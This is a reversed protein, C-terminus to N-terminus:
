RGPPASTSGAGPWSYELEPRGSGAYRPRRHVLGSEVLHELYRRATVRSVGLTAAVEAASVAGTGSRVAAVVARLSEESIGKPPGGPTGADRLGRVLDDVDRQALLPEGGTARDRYARYAELRQRVAGYTFPKVLYHTVGFAVAARVVALDRARTVAVVDVTNGAGRLRRLVDLGSTDPLHIDLFVLDVHLAALRKMAEGGTRAHAAVAFGPVRGVYEALAEASLPDDEVILVDIV